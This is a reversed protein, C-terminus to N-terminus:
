VLHQPRITQGDPCDKRGRTVFTSDKAQSAADLVIRRQWTQQSWYKRGDEKHRALLDEILALRMTQEASHEELRLLARRAKLNDRIRQWAKVGAGSIPQIMAFRPISYYNNYNLIAIREDRGETGAQNPIFETVDTVNGSSHTDDVPRM